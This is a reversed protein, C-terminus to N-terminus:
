NITQVKNGLTLRIESCIAADLIDTCLICALVTPGYMDCFDHSPYYIEGRIQFPNTVCHNVRGKEAPLRMIIVTKPLDCCQKVALVTGSANGSGLLMDDPEM